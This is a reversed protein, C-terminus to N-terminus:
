EGVFQWPVAAFGLEVQLQVALFVSVPAQRQREIVGVLQELAVGDQAHRLVIHPHQSLDALMRLDCQTIQLQEAIVLLRLLCLPANRGTRGRRM